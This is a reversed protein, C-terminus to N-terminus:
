LKLRDVERISGTFSSSSFERWSSISLSAALLSEEGAGGESLRCISESLLLYIYIGVFICCSASDLDLSM